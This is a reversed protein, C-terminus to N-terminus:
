VSFCFGNNNNPFKLASFSELSSIRLAKRSKSSSSVPFIDKRFRFLTALSSPSFRVSSSSCTCSYDCFGAQSRHYVHVERTFIVNIERTHSDKPFSQHLLGLHPHLLSGAPTEGCWSSFLNTSFRILLVPTHSINM